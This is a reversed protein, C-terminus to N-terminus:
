LLAFSVIILPMGALFYVRRRGLRSKTRDSILGMLPDSVADWGKGIAFVLAAALPSLGAVETLYFLFLMGIVLFSGGGFLDGVGYAILNRVRVRRQDGM